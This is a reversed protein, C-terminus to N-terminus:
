RIEENLLGIAIGRRDIIMNTAVIKGHGVHEIESHHGIEPSENRCAMSLQRPATLPPQLVSTPSWRRPQQMSCYSIQLTEVSTLKFEVQSEQQPVVQELRM